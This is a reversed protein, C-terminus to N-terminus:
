RAPSPVALLVYPISILDAHCSGNSVEVHSVVEWNIMIDGVYIESRKRKTNNAVGVLVKVLYIPVSFLVYLLFSLSFHLM